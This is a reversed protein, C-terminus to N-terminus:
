CVQLTQKDVLSDILPDFQTSGVTVFINALTM